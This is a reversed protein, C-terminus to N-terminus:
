YSICTLTIPCALVGFSGRQKEDQNEPFIKMLEKRRSSTWFRSETQSNLERFTIGRPLFFL